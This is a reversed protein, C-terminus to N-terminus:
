KDTFQRDAIRAAGFATEPQDYYGFDGVGDIEVKYGGNTSVTLSSRHPMNRVMRGLRADAKLTAKEARLELIQNFLHNVVANQKDNNM